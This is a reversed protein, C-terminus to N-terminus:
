VRFSQLLKRKQEEGTLTTYQELLKRGRTRPKRMLVPQIYKNNFETISHRWYNSGRIGVIAEIGTMMDDRSHDVIQQALSKAAPEQTKVGLLKVLPKITTGQVFVTIVIVVVTTTVLMDKTPIIKEDLTMVLGYCIAGRLGGYGMIFQDLYGIKSVRKKNAIWTFLYVGVFRWLICAIVTITTFLIDWIHRKSFTSMGLFVFIIAESSSTITKLFYRVTTLSQENLNGAIYPKMLLGCTVIALIGSLHVSEAILYSLFPLVLCLLPQVVPVVVSLKTMIATICVFVLGILVGGMSVMLFSLFAMLFDTIMINAPGIKVMGIFSHYLVITVADNLLSEGFVCIYLLQNVHIEEFVSLVAVPDVASILTSFLMIDLIGLHHDYWSEFMWITGGITLINFITGAVAYLIITWFNSFFASNPLFYGADLAIPPLLYLFFLDPHMYVDLLWIQDVIFGVILGLVILLASEPFKSAIKHNHHFFIKCLIIALLWTSLFLPTHVNHWELMDFLKQVM